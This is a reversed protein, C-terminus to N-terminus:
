YWRKKFNCYIRVSTPGELIENDLLERSLMCDFVRPSRYNLSNQWAKVEKTIPPFSNFFSFDVHKRNKPFRNVKRRKPYFHNDYLMRNTQRCEGPCQKKGSSLYIQKLQAIKITSVIYVFCRKDRGFDHIYITTYGGYPM